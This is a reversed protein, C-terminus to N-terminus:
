LDWNERRWRQGNTEAPLGSRASGKAAYSWTIRRACATGAFTLDGLGASVELETPLGLTGEGQRDEQLLGALGVWDSLKSQGSTRSSREM